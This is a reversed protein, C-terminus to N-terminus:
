SSFTYCLMSISIFKFVIFITANSFTGTALYTSCESFQASSVQWGHEKFSHLPESRMEGSRYSLQKENRRWLTNIKINKSVYPVGIFM